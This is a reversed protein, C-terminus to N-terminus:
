GQTRRVRSAVRAGATRVGHGVRDRADAGSEPAFLVALSLGPIHLAKMRHHVYADVREAQRADDAVPKIQAQCFAPIFCLPLFVSLPLLSKRPIFRM